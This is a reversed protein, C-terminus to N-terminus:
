RVLFLWHVKSLDGSQVAEMGLLKVSFDMPLVSGLWVIFRLGDNVLFAGRSDLREATLPLPQISKVDMAGKLVFSFVRTRM